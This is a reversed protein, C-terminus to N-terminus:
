SEFLEKLGLSPVPTYPFNAALNKMKTKLEIVENLKQQLHAQREPDEERSLENTFATVYENVMDMPDRDPDGCLIPNAGADLLANTEKLQLRNITYYLATAGSSSLVDLDINPVREKDLLVLVNQHRPFFGRPDEYAYRTSLHLVSQGQKDLISFDFGRQAAERVFNPFVFRSTVRDHATYAALHVPTMGNKDQVSFDIGPANFLLHFILSASNSGM